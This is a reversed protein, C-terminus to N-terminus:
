DPRQHQAEVLAPLRWGTRTMLQEVPWPFAQHLLYVLRLMPPQIVFRADRRVGDVVAEAVQDESLVPLLARAIGPVRERSGPNNRWYPSEVPGSEYHTVRISTRHLDARLADSLGRMARSAAIYATAGPWALRSAVSGMNLICGNGRELMGPLFARTLGAAALYPVALTGEIEDADMEQLFRWRGTGANNVLIDPVGAEDLIRRSVRQVAVPDALDAPYSRTNGGHQGIKRAVAALKEENRGLLLVEAAAAKSFARAIASGIGGSAGSVLVTKNEIQM